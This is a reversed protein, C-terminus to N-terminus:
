KGLAQPVVAQAATTLQNIKGLITSMTDLGAKTPNLLYAHRARLYAINAENAQPRIKDLETKIKPSLKHLTVRNDYEYKFVLDITGYAVNYASDILFLETDAVQTPVGNTDVPAYAGGPELTPSGCGANCGLFALSAILPLLLAIRKLYTKM